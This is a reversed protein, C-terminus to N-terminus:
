LVPRPYSYRKEEHVAHDFSADFRRFQKSSVSMPKNVIAEIIGFIREVADPYQIDILAFGQLLIGRWNIRGDRSRTNSEGWDVLLAGIVSVCENFLVNKLAAANTPYPQGPALWHDSSCLCTHIYAIVGLPSYHKNVQLIIPYKIAFPHDTLEVPIAASVALVHQLRDDDTTSEGNSKIEEGLLAAKIATYKKTLPVQYSPIPFAQM